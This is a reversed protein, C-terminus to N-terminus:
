EARMRRSKRRGEATTFAGFTRDEAAYRYLAICYRGICIM